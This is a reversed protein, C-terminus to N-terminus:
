RVQGNQWQRFQDYLRDKEQQSMAAGGSVRIREDLFRAFIDHMEKDNVQPAASAVVNRKLWQEAPPFRRWGPLEAALNVEAWKPHHAPEQLRPFQTFFADVFNAMNRYRESNTPQNTAVLVAGVAVTDVPADPKVLRPYDENTLRAPVYDNTLEPRLPIALFHLGDGGPLVEFLSTPKPAVYALAAVEGARLKQMAVAHDDFLANVKIRLAGLVAVGTIGAAGAFEVKRGALDAITKVNGAALLHLEENHLKAIYTIAGEIGPLVRNRKAYELVDTQVIGADVGRLAKLDALTQMPNQGIVPMIRRAAGDDVVSAIDQVMQISAGDGGGTLIEILVRTSTQVQIEARATAAACCAAAAAAVVLAWRSMGFGLSSYAKM